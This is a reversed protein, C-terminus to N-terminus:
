DAPSSELGRVRGALARLLTLAVTPEDRLIKMFPRRDLLLCLTETEAVVTASRPAGDILAMEGFYAGPRLEATARGRGRHVTARGSLVVYLAEGPDDASVIPARPDFRAVTGLSAIRRVHRAPVGAFLPIRTLLEAWVRANDPPRSEPAALAAARAEHTLAIRGRGPM